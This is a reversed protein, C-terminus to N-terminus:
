RAPQHFGSINLKNQYNFSVSLYLSISLSISLFLYLSLSLSLYISLAKHVLETYLLRERRRSGSAGCLEQWLQSRLHDPIGAHVLVQYVRLRHDCQPVGCTYLIHRGHPSAKEMSAQSALGEGM